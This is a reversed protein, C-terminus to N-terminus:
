LSAAARALCSKFGSGSLSRWPRGLGRRLAEIRTRRTAIYRTAAAAAAPAAAATPSSLFAGALRIAVVADQLEGLHDQLAVISAIPKAVCPDLVERFFELVYRLRKGEVRLAHLTEVSASPLMPDFARMDGYHSWIEAPLVHAVLAPHPIEGDEPARESAPPADLFKAYQQKFDAYARGRLHELMKARAADRTRAWSDLLGQFAPREAAPLKSQYDAAAALMVDLDRVAGLAGALARLGDRVPRIAKKRLHPQVIRLAARQRRTAVRMDHLEEPDEGAITGAEHALMQDRHFRLIKRGAESMLDAALVGIRKAGKKREGAARREPAPAVASHSGERKAGPDAGTAGPDLLALARAFKSQGQPRLGFPLLVPELARLDSAAGEATLEIELEHSLGEAHGAFEVRDLSLVAVKRDARIVDREARRQRLTLLEVLPRGGALRRLLELAPGAPWAEPPSGPPIEWEEEIRRHVAGRAGGMSKVTVVAVAGGDRVRRRCSYGADLLDREATDLYRDTLEFAGRPALRYGGITELALLREFTAPDPVVYKAEIERHGAASAERKRPAGGAHASM